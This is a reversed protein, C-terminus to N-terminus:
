LKGSFFATFLNDLVPYVAIINLGTAKSKVLNKKWSLKRSAQLKKDLRLQSKKHPKEWWWKWCEHNWADFPRFVTKPQTRRTRHLNHSPSNPALDVKNCCLSTPPCCEWTSPQLHLLLLRCHLPLHTSHKQHVVFCLIYNLYSHSISLQHSQWSVSQKNATM